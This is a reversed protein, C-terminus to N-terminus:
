VPARMRAVRIRRKTQMSAAQGDNIFGLGPRMENGLQVPGQQLLALRGTRLTQGQV